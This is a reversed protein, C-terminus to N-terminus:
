DRDPVEFPKTEKDEYPKNIPTAYEEFKDEFDSESAAPGLAEHIDITFKKM